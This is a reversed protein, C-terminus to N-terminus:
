PFLHNWVHQHPRLGPKNILEWSRGLLLKRHCQPSFHSLNDSILRNSWSLKMCSLLFMTSEAVKISKGGARHLIHCDRLYATRSCHLMRTSLFWPDKAGPVYMEKSVIYNEGWNLLWNEKFSLICMVSSYHPQFLQASSYKTVKTCKKSFKIQMFITQNTGCCYLRHIPYGM